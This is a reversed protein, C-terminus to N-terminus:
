ELTYKRLLDDLAERLVPAEGVDEKKALRSLRELQGQTYHSTKTVMREERALCVKNSGGAKARVMADSAKRVIEQGRSGDEPYSAVGISMSVPLRVTRHGVTFVHERDFAGRTQKLSLFAQEKELDPLVVM